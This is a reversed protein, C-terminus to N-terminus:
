PSFVLYNQITNLSLRKFVKELVKTQNLEGEHELYFSLINAEYDLQLDYVSFDEAVIQDIHTMEKESYGSFYEIYKKKM